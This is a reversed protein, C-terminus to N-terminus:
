SETTGSLFAHAAAIAMSWTADGGPASPLPLSVWERMSRGGLTVREATGSDILEQIRQQPLKVMLRGDRGVFAFFTGGLALGESAFMRGRTVGPLDDDGATLTDLLELGARRRPLADPDIQRGGM